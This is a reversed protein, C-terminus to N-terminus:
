ISLGALFLPIVLIWAILRDAVTTYFHDLVVAALQLKHQNFLLRDAQALSDGDSLCNWFGQEQSSAEPM